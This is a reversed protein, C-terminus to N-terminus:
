FLSEICHDLKGPNPAPKGDIEINAAARLSNIITKRNTAVQSKLIVSSITNYKNDIVDDYLAVPLIKTELVKQVQWRSNDFYPGLVSDAEISADALFPVSSAHRWQAKREVYLFDNIGLEAAVDDIDEGKVLREHTDQASVFSNFELVAARVVNVNVVLPDDNALMHLYKDKSHTDAAGKLLTSNYGDSQMSLLLILLQEREDQSANDPLNDLTQQFEDEMEDIQNARDIGQAKAANRILIRELVKDIVFTDTNPYCYNPDLLIVNKYAKFLAPDIVEGDISVEGIDASAINLSGALAVIILCLLKRVQVTMRKARLRLYINLGLYTLNLSDM